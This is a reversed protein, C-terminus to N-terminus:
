GGSIKLEACEQVVESPRQEPQHTASLLRLLWSYGLKTAGNLSSGEQSEEISAPLAGLLDRCHCAEIGLPLALRAWCTSRLKQLARHLRRGCSTGGVADEGTGTSSSQAKVVM